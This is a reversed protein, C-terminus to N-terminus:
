TIAAAINTGLGRYPINLGDLVQYRSTYTDLHFHLEVNETFSILAVRTGRELDDTNSIDLDNVVESIFELMIAFNAEGISGSNDLMIVLDAGQRCEACSVM